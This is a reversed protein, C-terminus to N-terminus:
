KDADTDEKKDAFGPEPPIDFGDNIDSEFEEDNFGPEVPVEEEPVSAPSGLPEESMSSAVQHAKRGFEDCITDTFEDFEKKIVDEANDIVPTPNEIDNGYVKEYLDNIAKTNIERQKELVVIRSILIGGVVTVVLKFLGDNSM